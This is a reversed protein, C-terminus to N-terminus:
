SRAVGSMLCLGPLGQTGLAYASKCGIFFVTRVQHSLYPGFCVSEGRADRRTYVCAAIIFLMCLPRSWGEFYVLIRDNCVSRSGAGGPAQEVQPQAYSTINTPSEFRQRDM